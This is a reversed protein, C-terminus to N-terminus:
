TKNILWGLVVALNCSIGVLQAVILPKQRHMIAYLLWILGIGTFMLWTTVALGPAPGQWAKVIQPVVALNGGIGVVYVLGDVVRVNNKRHLARSIGALHLPHGM